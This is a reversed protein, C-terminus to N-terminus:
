QSEKLWSTLGHVGYESVQSIYQKCVLSHRQFVIGEVQIKQPDLPLPRLSYLRSPVLFLWAQVGFYTKFVWSGAKVRRLDRPWPWLSCIRSLVRHFINIILHGLFTTILTQLQTRPPHTVLLASISSLLITLHVPLLYLLIFIFLFYYSRVPNHYVSETTTNIYTYFMRRPM